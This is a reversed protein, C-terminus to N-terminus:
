TKGPSAKSYTKKGRRDVDKFRLNRRGLSGTLKALEDKPPYNPICSDERREGHVTDLVILVNKM